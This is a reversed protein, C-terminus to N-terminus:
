ALEVTLLDLRCSDSASAVSWTASVVVDQAATTDIATSGIFESLLATAAANPSATSSGVGVFAGSAGVTRIVIEFEGVFIDNNAVDRAALSLLATGTLGGIYLKIALTDTSNTSTAIGQFRIKVRTGTHLTNKPITVKMDFATEATVNSIATSAAVPPDLVIPVRGARVGGETGFNVVLAGRHSFGFARGYFEQLLRPLAM